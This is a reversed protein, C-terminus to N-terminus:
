LSVIFLNKMGVLHVGLLSLFKVYVRTLVLSVVFFGGNKRGLDKRLLSKSFREMAVSVTCSEALVTCIYVKVWIRFSHLPIGM